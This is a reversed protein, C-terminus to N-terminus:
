IITPSIMFKTRVMVLDAFLNRMEIELACISEDFGDNDYTGLAGHAVGLTNVCQFLVGSPASETTTQAMNDLKKRLSFSVVSPQNAHASHINPETM